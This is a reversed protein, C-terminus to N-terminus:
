STPVGIERGEAYVIKVTFGRPDGQFDAKVGLRECVHNILREMAESKRQARDAAKTDENGRWDQYGNCDDEAIRGYTASYRLLKRADEATAAPLVRLLSAEFEFRQRPTAKRM